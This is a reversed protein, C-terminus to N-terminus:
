RGRRVPAAAARPRATSGRSRDGAGFQRTQRGTGRWRPVRHRAAAAADALQRTDRGGCARRRRGRVARHDPRASRGLESRQVLLFAIAGPAPVPRPPCAYGLPGRAAPAMCELDAIPLDLAAEDVEVRVVGPPVGGPVRPQWGVAALFATGLALYRGMRQARPPQPGRDGHRLRPQVRRDALRHHGLGGRPEPNLWHIHRVRRHLAHLLDPRATTARADGCLLLV